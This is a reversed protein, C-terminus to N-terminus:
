AQLKKFRELWSVEAQYKDVSLPFINTAAKDHRLLQLDNDTIIVSILEGVDSPAVVIGGGATKSTSGRVILDVDNASEQAALRIVGDLRRKTRDGVELRWGNDGGFRDWWDNWTAADVTPRSDLTENSWEALKDLYQSSEIPLRREIRALALKSRQCIVNFRVTGVHGLDLFKYNYRLGTKLAAIAADIHENWTDENIACKNSAKWEARRNYAQRKINDSICSYSYGLKYFAIRRLEDIEGVSELLEQFAAACTSWRKKEFAHNGWHILEISRAVSRIPPPSNKLFADREAPDLKILHRILFEILDKEAWKVEKAVRAFDGRVEEDIKAFVSNKSRKETRDVYNSKQPSQKSSGGVSTESAM